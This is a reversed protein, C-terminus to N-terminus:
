RVVVVQERLLTWPATLHITYIGNGLNQTNINYDKQEFTRDNRTFESRYVEIGQVDFVILSFSGEEQTGISVKLEGDSPNPSITMRTPTFMQITTIDNVCGDVTLFGNLIEPFYRDKSLTVNNIKIESPETRGL